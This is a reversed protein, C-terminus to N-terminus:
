FSAGRIDTPAPSDQQRLPYHLTSDHVYHVINDTYAKEQIETTKDSLYRRYFYLIISIQMFNDIQNQM